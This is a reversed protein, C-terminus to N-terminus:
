RAYPREGHTCRNRIAARRVSIKRDIAVLGRCLVLSLAIGGILTAVNKQDGGMIWFAIFGAPIHVLYFPYSYEGFRESLANKPMRALYDVVPAACLMVGYYGFISLLRQVEPKMGTLAWYVAIGYCGIFAISCVIFASKSKLWEPLYLRACAGIAFGLAGSAVNGYRAEWAASPDSPSAGLLIYGHYIIAAGLWLLLLRPHILLLLPILAYYSL